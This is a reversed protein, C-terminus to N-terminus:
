LGACTLKNDYSIVHTMHHAQLTTDVYLNFGGRSVIDSSTAPCTTMSRSNNSWSM